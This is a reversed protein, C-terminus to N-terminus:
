GVYVEFAVTANEYVPMGRTVPEVALIVFDVYVTTQYGVDALSADYPDTELAALQANGSQQSDFLDLLDQMLCAELANGPWTWQHIRYSSHVPLGNLGAGLAQAGWTTVPTPFEIDNIRYHGGSKVTM